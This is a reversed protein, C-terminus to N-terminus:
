RSIMSDRKALQEAVRIGSQLAGEMYGTFAYCTHEGAFYLRTLFGARLVPGVRTVEGPRPFSYSGRTWKNAPWDMFLGKRSNKPLRPYVPALRKLYQKRRNAWRRCVNADHAGSFAVLSARVGPQGFTGDWTLDIPGDSSMDPSEPNWSGNQVDLLYKVNRGFQQNRYARPLRPTFRIDRWLTPPIALVVDDGILQEGGALGVTVGNKDIEISEVRARTRVNRLSAAFKFALQQNGGKCRHTETDTWYRRLGGGKIMALNGLWSQQAAPVGNDTELLELFASRCDTSMSIAKLGAVLSSRDLRTADPSNWPKDANVGRAVNNIARQARDMEHALARAQPASLRKGNLIIPPNRHDKLPEFHLGFKRKYSWWARHNLGILEAGTEVVKKPIFDCRSKVRGGVEDQAELVTIRYGVSELEYAAALGAFGAGVVIVHPAHGSRETVKFRDRLSLRATPARRRKPPLVVPEAGPTAVM